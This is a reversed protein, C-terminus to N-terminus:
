IHILSLAPDMQLLDYAASLEDLAAMLTESVFRGGYTGFHGSQDPFAGLTENTGILKSVM